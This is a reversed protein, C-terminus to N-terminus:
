YLVNFYIKKYLYDIELIILVLFSIGQKVKLKLNLYHSFMFLLYFFERRDISFPM